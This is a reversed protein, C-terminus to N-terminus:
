PRVMQELLEEVSGGADVVVRFGSAANRIRYGARAVDYSKGLEPGSPNGIADRPDSIVIPRPALTAALDPLDYAMLANAVLEAPDLTYRRSEVVARYSVVPEVLAIGRLAPEFAAAHLLAVATSGRAAGYISEVEVDSRTKLYAAVRAIEGARIGVVSRGVQEALFAVADSVPGLDGTGALDPAAVLYGRRVLREIDHGPAAEAAKGRPHLYVVCAHRGGQRPVFVLLPIVCRGEGELAYMEVGYGERGYRGRFVAAPAGAPARYGTM